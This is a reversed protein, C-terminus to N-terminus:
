KYSVKGLKQALMEVDSHFLSFIIGVCSRLKWIPESIGFSFISKLYDKRAGAFDKRILKYRGSRSYCVVLKQKYFKHLKAEHFNISDFYSINSYYFDLALQYFGETIEVTYTKTVQTPYYRWKGLATDIFTFKGILSLQQWTPLDVLPLHFNQIFGNIKDLSSKRVLVTLAPIFNIFLFDKAASMVPTNTLINEAREILLDMNYNKSLDATSSFARGWSLVASEDEELTPVQLELKKPLWVDDGELIAIYKGKSKELAFNYTESLRFIGVNEQTFVQIRDDTEAFSRAVSLTNDISGDDVIIMEWNTYTQEQASRICDSIYKEHNYTPTIISVLPTSSAICQM